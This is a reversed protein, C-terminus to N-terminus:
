SKLSFNFRLFLSKFCFEFCKKKFKSFIPGRLIFCLFLSEAHM